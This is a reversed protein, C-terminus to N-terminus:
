VKRNKKKYVCACACPMCVCLMCMERVCAICVARCVCSMCVVCVTYTRMSVSCAHRAASHLHVRQRPGVGTEAPSSLGAGVGPAASLCSAAGQWGQVGFDTSVSGQGAM